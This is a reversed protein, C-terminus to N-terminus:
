HTPANARTSSQSRQVRARAPTRERRARRQEASRPLSNTETGGVTAARGDWPRPAQQARTEDALARPIRTYYPNLPLTFM